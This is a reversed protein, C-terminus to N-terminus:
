AVGAEYDARAGDHSVHRRGDGGRVAAAQGQHRAETELHVRCQRQGHAQGGEPVLYHRALMEAMDTKTLPFALDIVSGIKTTESGSSRKDGIIIVSGTTSTISGKIAFSVALKDGVNMFGRKSPDDRKLSQSFLTYAHSLDIYGNPDNDTVVIRVRNTKPSTIVVTIETAATDLSNQILEDLLTVVGRELVISKLGNHDVAIKTFMTRKASADMAIKKMNTM